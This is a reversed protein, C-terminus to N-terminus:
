LETMSEALHERTELFANGVSLWDRELTVRAVARALLEDGIREAQEM